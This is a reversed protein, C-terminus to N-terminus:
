EVFHRRLSNRKLIATCVFPHRGNVFSLLVRCRSHRRFSIREFIAHGV